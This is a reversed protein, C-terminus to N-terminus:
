TKDRGFHDLLTQLIIPYQEGNFHNAGPVIVVSADLRDQWASRNARWDSTHRDNDSMMVVIQQGAASRTRAQDFPTEIWPLLSEWPADTWFWGAVCLVSDVHLGVPLEALARLVAQCGVSHGIIVTRAMEDPDAGLLQQVRGMWSSITPEGPDPMDAVVVPDFPQPTVAGLERQLWPYWDDSPTGSWRPIVILRKSM